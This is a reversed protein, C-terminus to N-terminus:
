WSCMSSVIVQTRINLTQLIKQIASLFIQGQWSIYYSCAFNLHFDMIEFSLFHEQLSATIWSKGTVSNSFLLLCIKTEHFITKGELSRLTLFSYMTLLDLLYTTYFILIICSVKLYQQLTSCFTEIKVFLVNMESKRLDQPSHLGIFSNDKIFNRVTPRNDSRLFV